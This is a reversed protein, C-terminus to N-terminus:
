KRSILYGGDIPKSGIIVKPAECIPANTEAIVVQRNTKSSLGVLYASIAVHETEGPEGNVDSYSFLRKVEPEDLQKTLGLVVVHVHAKGRADSGWAFTRHAFAIELGFREFLLPWLQAVQEGQTISNTAVFAIGRPRPAANVFEGAKLFWAAVFDLTGGSGGLRATDRVQERQLQSQMKAGIFPPNGMECLECKDPAIVDAWELELADGHVINASKKLPIRAYNQGFTRSLENNMIHDMMWMAASAIEAPFEGIEIGHFQDVDVKSLSAASFQYDSRTLGPRNFVDTYLAKVLEIELLRLERYAIILFNGCGCAPDLFNLSALRSQFALL